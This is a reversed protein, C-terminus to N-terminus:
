NEKESWNTWITGYIEVTRQLIDKTKTINAISTRITGRLTEKWRTQGNSLHSM